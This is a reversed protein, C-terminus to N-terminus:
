HTLRRAFITDWTALAPKPKLNADVLGLTAFLPLIVPVPKPFSGLDLDTFSLQFVGIANAEDLLQSQRVIYRAQMERSSSFAGRVSASPWGGEVVMLPLVTTGRVRKYYDLPIQEPEKFGGLYPYSSLGLLNVFPFDRLDQAIGVYTGQQLLKGWATEVQVSIYLPLAAASRSRRIDSAADNTMRVVANYVPRPALHRVLNTEAALGLYDPRLMEVLARVYNRYLRQVAPETISRHAAVLPPAESERGLGNTVDITVVLKLKKSRYYHELDVGDKRLADEPSTGALLLAWPVDLHMIAADARRTWIEMSRVALPIDPKPPVVSFGMWYSRTGSSIIEPEHTARPCASVMVGLFVAAAWSRLAIMVDSYAAFVSKIPM